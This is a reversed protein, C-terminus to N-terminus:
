YSACGMPENLAIACPRAFTPRILESCWRATLIADASDGKELGVGYFRLFIAGVIQVAVVDHRMRDAHAVNTLPANRRMASLM